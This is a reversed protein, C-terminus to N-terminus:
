LLAKKWIEEVDAETVGSIGLLENDDKEFASGYETTFIAVMIYSVMVAQSVEGKALKEDSDKKIDATNVYELNWSKGPAVKKAIELLRNQTITIDKVFVSKNKTEEYKSLIAVVAKGVTALTSSSFPQNGDNYITTKDGKWNLLFGLDIGWDLFPGNVVYTYTIDAGSRVKEELHNRVAAKYGFVPLKAALPNDLNSGFESPLFRKVGAAIAADVIVTQGLLGEAGAASVVADQGKLVATLSDVSTYDARVVKVSSPFTSKSSERTM